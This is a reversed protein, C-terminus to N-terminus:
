GADLAGVMANAFVPLRPKSIVFGRFTYTVRARTIRRLPATAVSTEPKEVRPVDEHIPELAAQRAGRRAATGKRQGVSQASEQSPETDASYGQSCGLFACSSGWYHQDM